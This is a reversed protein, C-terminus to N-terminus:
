NKLGGQLNGNVDTRRVGWVSRVGGQQLQGGGTRGHGHEVLQGGVKVVGDLAEDQARPVDVVALGQRGCPYSDM